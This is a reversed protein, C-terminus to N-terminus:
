SNTYAPDAFVKRNYISEEHTETFIGNLTWVPHSYFTDLSQSDALDAKTAAWALDMLAWIEELRPSPSILSLMSSIEIPVENKYYHEIKIM